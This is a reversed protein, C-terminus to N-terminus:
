TENRTQNGAGRLAGNPTASEITACSQASLICAHITNDLVTEDACLGGVYRYTISVISRVERLIRTCM